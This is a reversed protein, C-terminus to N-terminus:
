EEIRRKGDLAQPFSFAPNLALAGRLMEKGADTRGGAMAIVGAHYLFMPEPTHFALVKASAEQADNQRGSRFLVWSLADYTYVDKHTELEGRALELARRLLRNEDAYALALMRNGKEGNAQGLKDIVDLLKRQQGAESTKGM